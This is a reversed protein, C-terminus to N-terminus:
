LNTGKELFTQISELIIDLYKHFLQRKIEKGINSKIILLYGLLKKADPRNRRWTPINGLSLDIPHLQSKGLSDCNAADSYLIISLIKAGTPLTSQTTKWWKGNNKNKTTKYLEEYELAFTQSIDSIELINQICSILPMYYLFYETNDHDLVKIKKYSLNSKMNNM